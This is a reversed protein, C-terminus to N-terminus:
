YGSILAANVLAELREHDCIFPVDQPAQGYVAPSSPCVMRYYPQGIIAAIKRYCGYIDEADRNCVENMIEIVLTSSPAFVLNALGAGHTAVVIEAEEFLARQEMISLDELFVTEFGQKSLTSSVVEQNILRVAVESAPRRGIFIRRQGPASRRPLGLRKRLVTVSLPLPLKAPIVPVDLVATFVSDSIYQDLLIFRTPDIGFCRCLADQTTGFRHLVVPLGALEEIGEALLILPLHDIIFHYHNTQGGVFLCPIKVALRENPLAFVGFRHLPDLYRNLQSPSLMRLWSSDRVLLRGDTTFLDHGNDKSGFTVFRVTLPPSRYFLAHDSHSKQGVGNTMGFFIDPTLEPDNLRFVEQESFAANLPVISAVQHHWGGPILDLRQSRCVALAKPEELARGIEAWGVVGRADLLERFYLTFQAINEPM